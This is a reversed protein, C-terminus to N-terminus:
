SIRGGGQRDVQRYRFPEIELKTRLDGLAREFDRREDFQWPHFSPRLYAKVRPWFIQFGGGSGIYLQRLDHEDSLGWQGDTRLLYRNRAYVDYWMAYTCLVYGLLRRAYSGSSKQYLDFCVAKHEVEEMAHYLLLNQFPPTMDWIFTGKSYIAHALCTTYHEAAAIIALRTRLALHRGFWLHMRHTQEDHERLRPYGIQALAANWKAHHRAHTGEQQAFREYDEFLQPELLGQQKLRAIGERATEIFFREGVPFVSQLGNLFHTIWVGSRHWIRNAQLAALYDFDPLRRVVIELDAPRM